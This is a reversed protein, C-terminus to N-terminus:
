AANSRVKLTVGKLLVAEIQRAADVEVFPVIQDALDVFYDSLRRMAGGFGAYGAAELAESSDPAQFGTRSGQSTNFGQIAVPRFINSLAEAFSAFAAKAVLSGNRSVLRGRVGAKGDDGLGYADLATEIVGGDQRICSLTEARLLARETSLDATAGFVVFCERVDSKFRNPLFAEHKIRMLAPIPDRKSQLGTPADVGTLLVGSIISGAPIYFEDRSNVGGKSASQGNAAQPEVAGYVRVKIPELSETSNSSGPRVAGARNPSVPAPTPEPREFLRQEADASATTKDDHGGPRSVDGRKIRELDQARKSNEDKVGGIAATLAAIDSRLQDLDKKSDQQVKKIAADMDRQNRQQNKLEAGVADLGLTRTDSGTLLNVDAKAERPAEQKHDPGASIFMYLLGLMLVLAGIAMATKRRDPTLSAWWAKIKATNV